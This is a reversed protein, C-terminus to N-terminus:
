RALEPAVRGGASEPASDFLWSDAVIDTYNGGAYAYTCHECIDIAEWDRRFQRRMARYRPGSWIAAFRETRVDGLVHKGDFDYV